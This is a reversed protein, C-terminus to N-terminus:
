KRNKLAVNADNEGLLLQGGDTVEKQGVLDFGGGTGAGQSRQVDFNGGLVGSQSGLLGREELGEVDGGLNGLTGNFDNLVHGQDRGTVADAHALGGEEVHQVNRGEAVTQHDLLDVIGSGEEVGLDQVDGVVVELGLEHTTHAVHSGHTQGDSVRGQGRSRM